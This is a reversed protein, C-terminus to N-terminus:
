SRVGGQVGEVHLKRIIGNTEVQFNYTFGRSVPFELRTPMLIGIPGASNMRLLNDVAGGSVADTGVERVVFVSATALAVTIFIGSITSNATITIGTTLINTNAGPAAIDHRDALLIPADM